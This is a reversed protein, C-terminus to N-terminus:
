EGADAAEIQSGFPHSPIIHEMALPVFEARAHQM